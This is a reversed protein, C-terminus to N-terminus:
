TASPSARMHEFPNLNTRTIADDITCVVGRHSHRSHHVAPSVTTVANGLLV